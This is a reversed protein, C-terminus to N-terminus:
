VPRLLEMHVKDLSRMAQIYNTGDEPTSGCYKMMEEETRAMLISQNPRKCPSPRLNVKVVEVGPNLTVTECARGKGM